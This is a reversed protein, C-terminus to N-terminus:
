WSFWELDLDRGQLVKEAGGANIPTPAPTPTPAVGVKTTGTPVGNAAALVVTFPPV